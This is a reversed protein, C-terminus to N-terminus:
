CRWLVGLSQYLSPRGGFVLGAWCPKGGTFFVLSRVLLM